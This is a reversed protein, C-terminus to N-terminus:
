IRNQPSLEGQMGYKRPAMPSMECSLVAKRPDKPSLKCSIDFQEKHSGLSIRIHTTLVM